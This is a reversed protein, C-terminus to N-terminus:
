SMGPEGAFEIQADIRGRTRPPEIPKLTVSPGHDSLSRALFAEVTGQSAVARYPGPLVRLAHKNTTVARFEREFSADGYPGIDVLCLM